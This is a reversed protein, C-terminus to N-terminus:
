RVIKNKDNKVVLTVLIYFLIGAFLKDAVLGWVGLYYILHAPLINFEEFGKHVFLLYYSVTFDVLNFLQLIVHLLVGYSHESRM